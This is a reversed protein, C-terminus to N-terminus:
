SYFVQAGNTESRKGRGVFYCLFHNERERRGDDELDEWGFLTDSNSVFILGKTFNMSSFLVKVLFFFVIQFSCECKLM